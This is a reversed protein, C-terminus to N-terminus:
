YWILTLGSALAALAGVAILLVDPTEPGAGNGTSPLTTSEGITTVVTNSPALGTVRFNARAEIRGTFGEDVRVQITMQGSNATPTFVLEVNHAGVTQSQFSPDNANVSGEGVNAGSLMAGSMGAVSVFTTGSPTTFFVTTGPPTEAVEFDLVYNLTEGARASAPGSLTLRYSAEQQGSVERVVGLASLAVLVPGVFAYKLM